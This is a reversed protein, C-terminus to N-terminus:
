FLRILPRDWPIALLIIVLALSYLIAVGRHKAVDTNARRGIGTGIHVLIIALIMSVLHEVAFFRLLPNSMAAGFDQFAQRTIPSAFIYLILGLLFQIDIAMGAFLVTRRDTGSWDRRGLWGLYSRALAVILFIVVLWRVINHLVLLVSYLDM